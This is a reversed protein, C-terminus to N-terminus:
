HAETQHPMPTSCEYMLTLKKLDAEVYGMQQSPEPLDMQECVFQPNHYKSDMSWWNHYKSDRSKNSYIWRTTTVASWHYANSPEPLAMQKNIWTNSHFIYSAHPQTKAFLSLTTINATWKAVKSKEIYKETGIAAGLYPRGETTINIGSNAFTSIYRARHIKLLSGLRPIKYWNESERSEFIATEQM